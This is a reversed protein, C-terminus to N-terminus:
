QAPEEETGGFSERWRSMIEDPPCFRCGNEPIPESGDPADDTPAATATDPATDATAGANVSAQDPSSVSDSPAQAAPGIPEPFPEKGGLDLFVKKLSVSAPVQRLGATAVELADKGRGVDKYMDILAHYAPEYEPNFALADNFLRNADGVEKLQLHVKGLEVYIQPRMWFRPETAKIVYNYNNKALGLNYSRDKRNLTRRARNVFNAAFCYHHIHLYNGQGLQAAAAVGKGSSGKQLRDTCFAPLLRLEAASPTFSEAANAFLPCVLLGAFFVWKM